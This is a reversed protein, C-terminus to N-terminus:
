GAFQHVCGYRIFCSGILKLTKLSPRRSSRTLKLRVSDLCIVGSIRLRCVSPTKHAERWCLAIHYHSGRIILSCSRYLANRYVLFIGRAKINTKRPCGFKIYLLNPNLAFIGIACIAGTNCMIRYLNRKKHVAFSSLIKIILFYRYSRKSACISTRPFGRKCIEKYVIRSSISKGLVRNLFCRNRLAISIRICILSLFRFVCPSALRQTVGHCSNGIRSDM